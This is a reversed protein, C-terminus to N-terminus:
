AACQRLLHRVYVQLSMRYPYTCVISSIAMTALQMTIINHVVQRVCTTKM